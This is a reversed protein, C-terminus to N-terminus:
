GLEVITVGMGHHTRLGTGAYQAHQALTALMVGALRDANRALSFVAGGVFAPISGRGDRWWSGRVLTPRARVAAALMQAGEVGFGVPMYADWSRIWRAFVIYPDPLPAIRGDLSFATPTIWRVAARGTTGDRLATKYWAMPDINTRDVGVVAFTTDYCDFQAPAHADALASALAPDLAAVSTLYEVGAEFPVLAARDAEAAPQMPRVSWALPDPPYTSAFTSVWDLVAAGHSQPLLANKECRLRLDLRVIM